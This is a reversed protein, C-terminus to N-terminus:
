PEVRRLYYLVGAAFSGIGLVITLAPVVYWRGSIHPEGGEWIIEALVSLVVVAAIGSAAALLPSSQVASLLWSVGFILVTITATAAALTNTSPGGFGPMASRALHYVSMSILWPFLCAAIALLAKSIIASRRARPLYSAFEASRDVREGAIANGGIFASLFVVICLSVTSAATILEAWNEEAEKGKVTLVVWLLGLFAYPFLLFIGEAILLRRNQRYDSWLLTGVNM